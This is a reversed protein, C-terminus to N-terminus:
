CCDGGGDGAGSGCTCAPRSQPVCCRAAACGSLLPALDVWPAVCILSSATGTCSSGGGSCGRGSLGAADALISLAASLCVAALLALAAARKAAPLTDGLAWHKRVDIARGTMTHLRSVTFFMWLISEIWTSCHSGCLECTAPRDPKDHLM